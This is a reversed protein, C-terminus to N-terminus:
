RFIKKGYLILWLVRTPLIGRIYPRNSILLEQFIITKPFNKKFVSLPHIEAILGSVINEYIKPRNRFRSANLYYGATFCIRFEDNLNMYKLSSAFSCVFPSVLFCINTIQLKISVALALCNQNLKKKQCWINLYSSRVYLQYQYLIKANNFHDGLHDRKNNKRFTNNKNMDSFLPVSTLYVSSSTIIWNILIQNKKKIAKIITISSSIDIPFISILKGLKTIKMTHTLIGLVFLKELSRYVSWICPITIFELNFFCNIKFSYFQLIISALEARYIEPKPYSRLKKFDNWTYFRYCKGKSERGARGARQNAESKSIPFIKFLEIGSKWDTVKQKSLGSDFVIKVGPITISSEAINTALIIKRIKIDTNKFIITQKEMSVGSHFEIIFISSINKEILYNLNKAVRTIEEQGPLFVLFNGPIKESFHYRIISASISFIYNYQPIKSYFNEVYFLRGPINLKGVKIGFYKAIKESDGTASMILVNLNNRRFILNKIMSILLDTYITREHFEDLIICDYESLSPDRSAEKFLVGDTVFKLKTYKSYRSDFRVSYGIELGMSINLFDSVFTASNIAAIRKTQAVVIKHFIKKSYFIRPIITTKGSGTEGLILLIKFKRVATIIHNEYEEVPYKM